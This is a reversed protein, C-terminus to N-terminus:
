TSSGTFRIVNDSRLIPVGSQDHQFFTLPLEEFYFYVGYWAAGKYTHRVRVPADDQEDSTWHADFVWKTIPGGKVWFVEDLKFNGAPLMISLMATDVLLVGNPRPPGPAKLDTAHSTPKPDAFLSKSTYGLSFVDEPM